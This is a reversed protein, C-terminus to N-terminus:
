QLPLVPKQNAGDKELLVDIDATCNGVIEWRNRWIVAYMTRRFRGGRVGRGLMGAFSEAAFCAVRGGSGARGHHSTLVVGCLGTFNPSRALRAPAIPPMAAAQYYALSIPMPPRPRDLSEGNSWRRVGCHLGGVGLCEKKEM